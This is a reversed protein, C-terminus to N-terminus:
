NIMQELISGVFYSLVAAAAGLFLTELISKIRRTQTVVSKLWGIGIFAISTLIISITFLNGETQESSYDWLYAILPVLGVIVFSVFTMTGMALPSKNSEMM